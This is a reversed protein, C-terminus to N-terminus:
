QISEDKPPLNALMEELVSTPLDDLCKISKADPEKFMGIQKGILELARNAVASGGRVGRARDLNEVLERLVWEKTIAVQAVAAKTSRREIRAILEKIRPVFLPRPDSVTKLYGTPTGGPM